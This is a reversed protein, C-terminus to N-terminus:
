AQDGNARLVFRQMACGVTLPVLALAYPLFIRVEEVRGVTWWLGLYIASGTLLAADSADPMWRGRLVTAVLWGFPLMFLVFPVVGLLNRLNLWLEFM